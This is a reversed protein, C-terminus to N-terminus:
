RTQPGAGHVFIVAPLPRESKPLLLSGALKVDENHFEVRHEEIGSQAGTQDVCAAPGAIGIVLAISCVATPLISLHNVHSTTLLEVTSRMIPFFAGAQAHDFVRVWM